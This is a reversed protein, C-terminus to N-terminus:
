RSLQISIGEQLIDNALKSESKGTEASLIKLLKAVSADFYLTKKKKEAAISKKIAM